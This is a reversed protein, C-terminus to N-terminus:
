ARSMVAVTVIIFLGSVAFGAQQPVQGVKGFLQGIAIPLTTSGSRSLFSTAGFEGLSMAMSLGGARMVAPRLLPLEVHLFTRLGGAGLVASARRLGPPIAAHAPQLTRTTLPFAITAHVVPLLWWETRWAFPDDDFAIILGVGLTAASVVMPLASVAHAVKSGSAVVALSLPVCVAAALVAFWASNRAVELASESMGPLREDVLARWGALTWTGTATNRVSRVLAATLPAVVVALAVAVAAAVAGRRAGAGAWERRTSLAPSPADARRAAASVAVVLAIVAMQVVALATATTTDGLRITQTFIEAELTRRGFGGVIVIVGFSTFCYMFVVVSANITANRIHPWTVHVFRRMAPAGLIAAADELRADLMEWRPGVLRLVVSINFLAHAWLIAHVGTDHDGPLVALVGAGVVVAPLVFPASLIGRVLRAGPFQHRSLAWTAPLGVALTIAVSALGQWLSFWALRVFSGDSMTDVLVDMRLFGVLTASVPVAFFVALFAMPAIAVARRAPTVFLHGEM